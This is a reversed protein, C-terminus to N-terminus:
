GGRCRGGARMLPQDLQRQQHRGARASAQQAGCEVHELPPRQLPALAAGAQGPAQSLPQCHSGDRHSGRDAQGCSKAGAQLHATPKRLLAPAQPRASARAHWAAATGAAEVARGGARGQRGCTGSDHSGASTTCRAQGGPWYLSRTRGGPPRQGGPRGAAEGQRRQRCGCARPATAPGHSHAQDLM